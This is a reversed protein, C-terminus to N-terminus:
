SWGIVRSLASRYVSLTGEVFSELTASRLIRARAREGFSRRTDPETALKRIAEALPEVTGHPVILGDEGDTVLYPLGGYDSVVVPIGTAMLELVSFPAIETGVSPQAGFDMAHLCFDTDERYGAFLVRDSLGLHKTLAKLEEEREGSGLALVRLRPIETKLRAVAELLYRHGKAPTLRAVIGCVIDGESFGFERRARQRKEPDPKFRDVDVGNQVVTVRTADFVPHGEYQPVLAPGVLLQWDTWTRNLVRNFVHSAVPYTNHRSRVLGCPHGMRQNVLAFLWHDQSGNVHLVQPRYARLYGACRCLDRFWAAPKMGRPYALHLFRVGEVRALRELLSDARCAVTVEHGRRALERALTAVYRVQGGGTSHPDALVVRLSGPTASERM